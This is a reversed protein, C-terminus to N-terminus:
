EEGMIKEVTEQVIEWSFGRRALAQSLKQRAEYRPLAEYKKYLKQAASEAAGRQQDEDLLSLANEADEESIGKAMLKRKFAYVGESRNMEAEALRAAIACDNLLRSKRLKEIVSEIVPTVFGKLSLMDRVQKETKASRDLATLAMEYADNWQLSALSDIYADFDIEEGVRIPHKTFDKKRVRLLLCRDAYVEMMGRKEEIGTIM